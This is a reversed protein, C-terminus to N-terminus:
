KKFVSERVTQTEVSNKRLEFELVLRPQQVSTWNGTVVAPLLMKAVVLVDLESVRGLLFPIVQNVTLILFLVQLCM